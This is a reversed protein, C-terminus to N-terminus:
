EGKERKTMFEFFPQRKIVHRNYRECAHMIFVSIMGIVASYRIQRGAPIETQSTEVHAYYGFVLAFVVGIAFGVGFQLSSRSSVGVSMAYMSAGLALTSTKLGGVAWWESILPLAPWGLHFM